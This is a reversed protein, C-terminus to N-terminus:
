FNLSYDLEVEQDDDTIGILYHGSEDSREEVDVFNERGAVGDMVAVIHDEVLAKGNIASLTGDRLLAMITRYGGNGYEVLYIQKVKGSDAFPYIAEQDEADDKIENRKLDETPILAVTGDEFLTVSQIQLPMLPGLDDDIGEITNVIKPMDEIQEAVEEATQEETAEDEKDGCATLCLMLALTMLLALLITLKNRMM